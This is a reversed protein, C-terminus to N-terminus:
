KKLILESNNIEYVKDVKEMTSNRHSIIIITKKGKLNNITNMVRKETKIDLASTSEDLILIEPNFYLARALGLRQQQGGSVNIGNEGIITNLKNPLSNVFNNLDSEYLVRSVRNMDIDEELVGFAINNIITDDIFYLNQPIYGIKKQWEPLNKYISKNDVLINADSNSSSILGTLINVLTTKGLGSEGLIGVIEGKNVTFNIRDFIKKKDNYSFSVNKIVLNNKFNLNEKEYSERKSLNNKFKEFEDNLNKISARKYRVEQFRMFIRSLAPILRFSAIAFLGLKSVILNLESGTLLMSIIAISFLFIILIEVYNKVFSRSLTVFLNFKKLNYLTRNTNKILSNESQLLKIEKAAFFGQSLFKILLGENKLREIGYVNLKKKIFFFIIIIFSISTISVILTFFLDVYLLILFTGIAVLAETWITIIGFLVYVAYECENSNNRLLQSTNTNLFFSYDQSLYNGFLKSKLKYKINELTKQQYFTSLMLFVNKILFIMILLLLIFYEPRLDLYNLNKLTSTLFNEKQDNLLFDFVPIFIGISCMELLMGFFMLLFIFRIKIKFESDIFNFGSTLM